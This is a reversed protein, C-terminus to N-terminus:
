VTSQHNVLAIFDSRTLRWFCYYSHNNNILAFEFDKMKIDLSLQSSTLHILSMHSVYHSVFGFYFSICLIKNCVGRMTGSITKEMAVLSEFEIIDNFTSCLSNRLQNTEIGIIGHNKSNRQNFFHIPTCQPLLNSVTSTAGLLINRGSTTVM